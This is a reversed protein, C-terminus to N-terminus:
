SCVFFWIFLGGIIIIVIGTVRIVDICFILIICFGHKYLIFTQELITYMHLKDVIFWKYNQSMCM